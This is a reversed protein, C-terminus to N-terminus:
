GVPHEPSQKAEKQHRSAEASRVTKQFLEEAIVPLNVSSNIKRSQKGKWMVPHGKSKGRAQRVAPAHGHRWTWCIHQSPFGAQGSSIRIQGEMGPTLVATFLFENREHPFQALLFLGTADIGQALPQLTKPRTSQVGSLATSTGMGTLPSLQASPELGM